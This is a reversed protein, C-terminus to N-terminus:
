FRNVCYFRNGCNSTRNNVRMMGHDTEHIWLKMLRIEGEFNGGTKWSKVHSFYIVIGCDAGAFNDMIGSLSRVWSYEVEVHGFDWLIDQTDRDESECARFCRFLLM